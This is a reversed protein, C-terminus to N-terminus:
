GPHYGVCHIAPKETGEELGCRIPCLPEPNMFLISLVECIDFLATPEPLSALHPAM